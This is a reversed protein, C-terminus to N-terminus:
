ERGGTSARRGASDLLALGQVGEARAVRLLPADSTAVRDQGRVAAVLACDALSVPTRTRHYHRTRLEAARWALAADLDILRVWQEITPAILERVREFRGGLRALRDVAEALNLTVMASDGGRLLGVVEEAGPEDNALAVLGSADVITSM